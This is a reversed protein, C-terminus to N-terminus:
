QIVFETFFLGRISGTKLIQNIKSILENKLNLKGEITQINLMTKSSLILLVVDRIQPLRSELEPLVEERTYEVEIKAKLYRKGGKESLNVVFTELSYIQGFVSERQAPSKVSARQSGSPANESSRMLKQYGWYGGGALGALLVVILIWKLPSKKEEEEEDEFEEIEEM